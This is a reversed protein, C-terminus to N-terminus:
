VDTGSGIAQERPRVGQNSARAKRFHRSPKERLNRNLEQIFHQAQRLDASDFGETFQDYVSQLLRIAKRNQKQRQWLRSLDCSVRLEWCLAKQSRAIKLAELLTSEIARSNTRGTSQILRAKACLIEPVAWREGTNQCVRLAREITQLAIDDRGMKAHTEAELMLFVPVWLQAGGNQWGAVGERLVEGGKAIDGACTSAWGRFITGCNVWHLFGNQECISIMLDAYSPMEGYRRRFLDTFGRVHCITYVLTHPHSLKEALEIAETAIKLAEDVKGVHWLAWSLYCMVAAETDQGYQYRCSPSPASRYLTRAQKLHRLASVFEGMTLYTTGVLRHAVCLTIPDNVREAEALFEAAAERQQAV